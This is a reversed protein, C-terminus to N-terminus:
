NVAQRVKLLGSLAHVVARSSLRGAFGRGPDIAVVLMKGNLAIGTNKAVAIKVTDVHQALAQRTDDRAAFRDLGRAVNQLADFALARANADDNLKDWDALFVVNLQRTYALHQGEDQAAAQMEPLAVNLLQPPESDGERVAPLGTPDGDPYLTLGGWGAIQLATSGTDYKLVRSGLAAHDMHLVFVEPENGVRLLYKDGMPDITFRISDAAVYSGPEIGGLHDASLKESMSEQASARVVCVAFFFLAAVIGIGPRM